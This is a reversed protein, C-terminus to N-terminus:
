RKEEWVSRRYRGPPVGMRACFHRSFSASDPFGCGAAIQAVSYDTRRLLEEAMKVRYSILYEQPSVGFGKMFLRYLYTRDVGVAAAVDAVRLNSEYRSQIVGVAKQLYQEAPVPAAPREEALLAFLRYLYGLKEYEGLNAPQRCLERLLPALRPSACRFTLRAGDGPSADLGCHALIGPTEGGQFGVWAYEWPDKQDARYFTVEGPLILFGDGATLAHNEGGARYEGRGALIFHILYQERIFPGFSHGPACAERGFFCLQMPRRDEQLPM